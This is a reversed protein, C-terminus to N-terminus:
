PDKHVLYIQGERDVLEVRFGAWRTIAPTGAPALFYVPRNEASWHEVLAPVNVLNTAEYLDGYEIDRSARLALPPDIEYPAGIVASRSPLVRSVLDLRDECARHMQRLAPFDVALWTALGWGIALVSTGAALEGWRVLPRWKRHVAFVCVVAVGSIVLSGYLLAVRRALPGDDPWQGLWAASLVFAGVLLAGHRRRWPLDRIAAICMAALLSLAPAVYRINVFPFGYAFAGPQNARLTVALLLGVCPLGLALTSRRDRDTSFPAFVALALAPMVQLSSKVLYPGFMYGVGDPAHAMDGLDSLNMDAVYGILVQGLRLGHIRLPPIAVFVLAAAGIVGARLSPTRVARLALMTLAFWLFTPGAYALMVGLHQQDQGTEACSRWPCPGYSIPNLSGFRLQNLLATPLISTFLGLVAWGGRALSARDPLWLAAPLVLVGVLAGIMPFALLHSGVALGGLIGVVFARGRIGKEADLAALTFYTAWAVLGVMLVYPGIDLATLSAPSFFAVYATATGLLPDSLYKKGVAYAGLVFVILLGTNLRSVGVLGCWRFFPAALYAYVPPYSGWLRHDREINWRARLEPFEESPGNDLYPLGHESIGKIMEIYTRGDVSPPSRWPGNSMAWALTIFLPILLAIGLRDRNM